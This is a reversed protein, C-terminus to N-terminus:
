SGWPFVRGGPRWLKAPVPNYCAVTCNATGRVIWWSSRMWMPKLTSSRGAFAAKPLNDLAGALGNLLFRLRDISKPLPLVLLDVENAVSPLPSWQHAGITFDDAHVHIQADINLGTLAPDNAEVVLVQRGALAEDQRVLLQTTNEM